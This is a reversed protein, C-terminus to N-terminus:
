NQSAKSSLTSSLHNDSEDDVGFFSMPVNKAPKIISGSKKSLHQNCDDVCKYLRRGEKM